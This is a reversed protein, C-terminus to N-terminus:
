RREITTTVVREVLEVVRQAAELLQESRAGQLTMAPVMEQILADRVARSDAEAALRSVREEQTRQEAATLQRNGFWLLLAIAGLQPIASLLWDGPQSTAWVGATELVWVAAFVGVTM